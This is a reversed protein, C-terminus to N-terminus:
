GVAAGRRVRWVMQAGIVACAAGFILGTYGCYRAANEVGSLSLLASQTLVLSILSCVLSTRKMAEVALNKVRRAGIIGRVAIALEAFTMTAIALSVVIDYRLNASGRLTLSLAYLIYLASAVTIAIGVRRYARYREGDRVGKVAFHKAAAIGVSYLGSVCILPSLTLIGIAIKILAIAANTLRTLKAMRVSRRELHERGFASKAAEIVRRGM